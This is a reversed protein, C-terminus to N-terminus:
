RWARVGLILVGGCLTMGGLVALIPGFDHPTAFTWTLAAGILSPTTNTLNFLGLDRGRHRPDPLLQLALGAHLAVFVSSGTTYLIFAAAATWRDDAGAMAFLGAAALGAAGLLVWRRRQPRDAMSGLLLAIPMPVLFAVTFVRGIWGPLAAHERLPVVTEFYYLLYLQTVVAAVQILLRSGSAVLFDRRPPRVPAPEAATAALAGPRMLLMPLICLLVVALIVTLQAGETLATTGVLVASLASAAPQGMTLLGGAIGRKADPIEEALIAMMPALVANVALQFVVVAALLAIPTAALAVAVYSAGVAAIGAGMWRRRGHGARQSRDSLWGFLINAGGAVIAGAVAILSLLEIRGAQSIAEVKIPLLLSLLPLYAIVGGAYALAFIALVSRSWRQAVASTFPAPDPM